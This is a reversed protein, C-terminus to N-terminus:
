DLSLTERKLPMTLNVLVQGLILVFLPNLISFLQIPITYFGLDRIVFYKIFFIISVQSQYFAIRYLIIIIIFLFFVKMRDKEHKSLSTNLTKLKRRLNMNLFSEKTLKTKSIIKNLIHQNLDNKVTDYELIAKEKIPNGSTDILLRSKQTHYSIFGIILLIGFTLFGWKFSAYNTDGVFITMIILGTIGGFNIMAYLISFANLRENDDTNIMNILHSFGLNVFSIGFAFFIMGIFFLLNQTNFILTDYKYTAPVYMSASFFILFQSIIALIFGLNVNINNNLYKDQIFGLPIPLLYVFIFVYAYTVSTLSDTYHLGNMLFLIFILGVGFETTASIASLSSIFYTGKSNKGKKNM